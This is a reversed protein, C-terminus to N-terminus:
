AYGLLSRERERKRDESGPEGCGEGDEREPKERRRCPKRCPNRKGNQDEREGELVVDGRRVEFHMLDFANAVAHGGEEAGGDGVFTRRKERERM